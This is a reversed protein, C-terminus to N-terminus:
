AARRDHAIFGEFKAIIRRLGELVTATENTETKLKGLSSGLTKIAESNKGIDSISTGLTKISSGTDKSAAAMEKIHTNADVLTVKLQGSREAISSLSTSLNKIDDVPAKIGSLATGLNQISTRTEGAAKGMTKIETQAATLAEKLLDSHKKIESGFGAMSTSSGKTAEKLESVQKTLASILDAMKKFDETMGSIGAPGTGTGATFGSDINRLVAALIPATAATFVGELFPTSISVIQEKGIRAFDDVGLAQSLGVVVGGTLSAIGFAVISESAVVIDFGETQSRYFFAASFFLVFLGSLIFVAYTINVGHLIILQQPHLAGGAFGLALALLLMVSFRM